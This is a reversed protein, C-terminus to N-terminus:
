RVNLVEQLDINIMMPYIMVFLVPLVASQLATKTGPGIVQGAVLGLFLSVVVASILNAKITRFLEGIM